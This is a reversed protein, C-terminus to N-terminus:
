IFFASYLIAFVILALSLSVALVTRVHGSTEGSRAETTTLVQEEDDDAHHRSGYRM